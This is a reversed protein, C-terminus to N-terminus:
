KCITQYTEKAQKLEKQEPTIMSIIAFLMTFFTTVVGVKIRTSISIKLNVDPDIASVLQFIIGMFGMLTALVITGGSVGDLTSIIYIWINM